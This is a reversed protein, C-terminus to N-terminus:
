YIETEKNKVRSCFANFDKKKRDYLNYAFMIDKVLIYSRISIFSIIRWILIFFWKILDFLERIM